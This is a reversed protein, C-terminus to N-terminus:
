PRNHRCCRVITPAGPLAVSFVVQETRTALNFVNHGAGMLCPYLYLAPVTNDRYANAKGDWARIWATQGVYGLIASVNPRRRTLAEQRSVPPGVAGEPRWVPRCNHQFCAGKDLLSWASPGLRARCANAFAHGTTQHITGEAKNFAHAHPPCPIVRFYPRDAIFAQLDRVIYDDGHGQRAYESGFDCRLVRFHGDPVNLRVWLEMAVLQHILDATSKTVCFLPVAYGTKEEAFLRMYENGRWDPTHRHSIDAWWQEGPQLRDRLAWSTLNLHARAPATRGMARQAIGGSYDRASSVAIRPHVGDAVGAM